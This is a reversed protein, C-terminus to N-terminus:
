ESMKKQYCSNNNLGRYNWTEQINNPQSLGSSDTAKSIFNPNDSKELKVDWFVWSWARGDKQHSGRKLNTKIWTRGETNSIEVKVIKKGDGSYAFGYVVITDNVTQINTIVSQPSMINLAPYKNLNLGSPDEITSPLIKYSIGTQWPSDIESNSLSITKLWKLNRIGVYGPVILRLPYGHDRPLVEQNMNYALIVDGNKDLVKEIPISIEVGDYSTFNIFKYKSLEERSFHDRLVLNLPVGEWMANSIAGEKWQTGNTKKLKDLESRRNGGCQITSTIVVSKYKKIDELSLEKNGLYLKYLAINMHNFCPVPHHNRVYWLENPTIWYDFVQDIPTEANCPKVQHFILDNDRIPDNIYPDIDHNTENPDYDSLIGVQRPSLIDKIIYEQNLHQRYINWYPELSKGAALLIKDKGGPHSDIFDTIDYVKDKYTVRYGDKSNNYKEIEKKTYYNDNVFKKQHYYYYIPIGAALSGILIKKNFM